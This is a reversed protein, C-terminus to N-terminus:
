YCMCHLCLYFNSQFIPTYISVIKEIKRLKRGPFIHFPINSIKAMEEVILTEGDDGGRSGNIRRVTRTHLPKIPFQDLSVEAEGDVDRGSTHLVKLKLRM